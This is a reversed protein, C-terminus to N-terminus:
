FASSSDPNDNACAAVWADRQKLAEKDLDARGRSTLEFSLRIVEMKGQTVSIAGVKELISLAAKLEAESFTLLQSLEAATQKGVRNQSWRLLERLVVHAHAREGVPRAALQTRVDDYTRAFTM